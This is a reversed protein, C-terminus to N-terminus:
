LYSPFCLLVYCPSVLQLGGFLIPLHLYVRWFGFISGLCQHKKHDHKKKKELIGKIQNWKKTKPLTMYTNGGMGPNEIKNDKCYRLHSFPLLKFTRGPPLIGFWTNMKDIQLKHLLSTTFRTRCLKGFWDLSRSPSCAFRNMFGKDLGPAHPM